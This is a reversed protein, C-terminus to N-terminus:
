DVKRYALLSSRDGVDPLQRLGPLEALWRDVSERESPRHADDMLVHADASLREGLLPIAPYRALPGTAKPPGDVLLLDIDHLDAIAATDYWTMTEGSLDVEGLPATRVDVFDSLGHEAVTRRTQEAFEADHELSVVRRPGGLRRLAYALWVTSSGSGCEVVLSPQALEVLRVLRLLTSPQLAWGGVTPLPAEVDPVRTMLQWLAQIQQVPRYDLASTLDVIKALDRRHRQGLDQLGAMHQDVKGVETILTETQGGARDSSLEASRRSDNVAALLELHREAAALRERGVAAVAREGSAGATEAAVVAREGSAGAAEAAAAVSRAVTRGISNVSRKSARDVQGPLDSLGGLIAVIKDQRTWLSKVRRLIDGQRRRVDMQLLATATVLLVIIAVAIDLRNLAAATAGALGLVGLVACFALQRRSLGM